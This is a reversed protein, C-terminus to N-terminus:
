KTKSKVKIKDFFVFLVLGILSIFSVVNVFFRLKTDHFSITVTNRGKEVFYTILGRNKPDQFEVPVNKGNVVVEWGPFYLTNERIRSHENANVVYTHLTSKRILPTIVASGSIVDSFAKPRKEMFRVSWVPASEGTDTTGDYVASFFRDPKIQYEKAHWYNWTFSICGISVVCLSFLQLKKPIISFVIGGIVAAVFISLSLFRWPFQFKQMISINEWVLHSAPTMIWLSVFFLFIAAGLFYSLKSKKRFLWIAVPISVAIGVWQMVGIQVTFQNTGGYSWQGFLFDTYQVIFRSAYEGGGTVIDRLTYKGEFFAPIVFFSSLGVGLLGFISFLTVLKQKKQSQVMLYLGYLIIIPAFMLLLANHSLFLGAISFSFGVLFRLKATKVYQLMCYLVLPPFVFFVHEGIAGRVYLDVFRYPAFTYLLSAVFAANEGLFNKTWFFMTIGSAIFSVAFVLKLSDVFSFGFFHFASAAYSPLPYLFMLIPHGYGWNLNMAWRPIVIGESLVGYFNAIRALHDQGDHTVPFGPHLLDLLPLCLLFVLVMLNGFNKM